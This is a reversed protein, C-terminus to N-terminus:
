KVHAERLGEIGTKLVQTRILPSSSRSTFDKVQFHLGTGFLGLFAVGAALAMWLVKKRAAERFTVGAMIWAGM